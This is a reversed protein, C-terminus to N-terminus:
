PLPATAFVVTSGDLDSIVEDPGDTPVGALTATSRSCTGGTCSYTIREIPTEITVSSGGGGVTVSEGERIDRTMRELAGRVNALTENRAATDSTRSVTVQYLLLTTGLAVLAIVAVVILEILTFGDERALRARLRSSQEKVRRLM